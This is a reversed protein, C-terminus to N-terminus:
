GIYVNRDSVMKFHYFYNSNKHPNMPLVVEKPSILFLSYKSLFYKFVKRNKSFLRIIGM